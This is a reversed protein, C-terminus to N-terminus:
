FTNFAELVTDILKAENHFGNAILYVKIVHFDGSLIFQKQFEKSIQGKMSQIIHLRALELCVRHHLIRTYAMPRSKEELAINNIVHMLNLIDTALM